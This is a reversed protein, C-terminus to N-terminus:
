HGHAPEGLMKKLERFKEELMEPTNAELNLRLLPETNSKRVNFWWDGFDITIGDLYDIQAKKYHEALERIKRTRTRSRSTSRAARAHVSTAARDARELPKDQASLISLVGRSRSRRRLRRLLQRPLLLPGVARRRLRGEDRGDDEQHVRPRRPRAAARRGRGQDDDPVVHSSRLDYVITAGKNEPQKLFDEALLATIM